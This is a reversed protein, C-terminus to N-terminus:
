NSSIMGQGLGNKCWWLARGTNDEGEPRIETILCVERQRAGTGPVPTLLLAARGSADFGRTLRGRGGMVPFEIPEEVATEALLTAAEEPNAHFGEARMRENDGHPPMVVTSRAQLLAAVLFLVIM